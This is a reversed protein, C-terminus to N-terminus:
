FVAINSMLIPSIEISLDINAINKSNRFKFQSIVSISFGIDSVSGGRGPGKYDIDTHTDHFLSIKHSFGRKKIGFSVPDFHINTAQRTHHDHIQNNLPFLTQIGQPHLHNVLKFIFIYQSYEYLKDFPVINYRQFLELSHHRRPVGAIMRVARKQIILLPKLYTSYTGGWVTYSTLIYLPM